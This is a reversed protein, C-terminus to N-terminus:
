AVHRAPRRRRRRVEGSRGHYDHDTFMRVDAAGFVRISRISRNFDRPM